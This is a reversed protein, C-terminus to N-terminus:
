LLPSFLQLQLCASLQQHNRFASIVLLNDKQVETTVEKPPKEAPLQAVVGKKAYYDIVPETQRHFAELRSKLVEATDDKRQMLPEGTVDDVGPAKPPAFKTHYSRGSSAHIWRGTIREELIADDIAFNLVKDITKGQKELMEDLKEAQVVTRPFGDLIFGKQCSPKKMAEDIIGVVLDDSVLEGKNMAEKAKVGLPTKAAVAARLMDGTALHCLCYEDKIIPSQTGKGSGPPGILILRKDPKPACKMRRLLESMLDVTQVDELSSAM